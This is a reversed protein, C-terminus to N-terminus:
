SGHMTGQEYERAMEPSLERKPEFWQFMLVRAQEHVADFLADPATVSWQVIRGPLMNVYCVSYRMTQGFFEYRYTWEASTWHGTPLLGDLIPLTEVKTAGKPIQGLVQKGLLEKGAADLPLATGKVQSIAVHCGPKDPILDLAAPSDSAKWHDPIQLFIKNDGDTIYSGALSPGESKVMMHRLTFDLAMLPQGTALFLLALALPVRIKM